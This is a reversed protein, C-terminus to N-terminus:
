NFEKQFNKVLIKTQNQLQKISEPSFNLSKVDLTVDLRGAEERLSDIITQIQTEAFGQAKLNLALTTFALQAEEATATSLTKITSEFEKKFSEDARLTDRASREEKQLIQRNRTEFPLKTPVVGFFDGLTKVQGTTIRMANSLGYIYELEKKRADNILKTAFFFATM